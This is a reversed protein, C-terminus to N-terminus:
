PENNGALRIQRNSGHLQVFRNGSQAVDCGHIFAGAVNQLEVLPGKVSTEACLRHIELREVDRAAVAPWETPGVSLNSIRVQSVRQLSLGARARHAVVDTISVGHIFREPLGEITAIRPVDGLTLGGLAVDRFTPTGEDPRPKISRDLEPNNAPSPSEGFLNDMRVSDFFHTMFLAADGIHDLVLNSIRIREVIGGRGRPSRIHVGYKCNSIVCNAVTVNKIGAATESGIAIAAGPSYFLNCNTVVIDECPVGVRRGDENYGSKLAISEGGSGICCGAIRVQKSSDVIIGDCHQAELGSMSVQEIAVDQCYVLHISYSPAHRLAVGALLVRQCRIFNILRPLPWRLPVEPPNEAERPMGRALRADRTIQHAQWWPPGQGDIIGQGTIGVNELDEGTLLSAYITREVGDSRGSIPPYDEFRTSGLLTAGASLHLHVNNRLFLAGSLFQGAPLVVTGGGAQGCADIAAQLARTCATKGDGAAGFRRVDFSESVPIEAARAEGQLMSGAPIAVGTTSGVIFGRRTSGGV